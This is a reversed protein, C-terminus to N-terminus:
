RVTVQLTDRRDFRDPAPIHLSYRGPPLGLECGGGLHAMTFTGGLRAQWRVPATVTGGPELWVRRAIGTSLESVDCGPPPRLVEGDALVESPRSVPEGMSDFLDVQLLEQGINRYSVEHEVAGGSSATIPEAVMALVDSAPFAGCDAYPLACADDRDQAALDFESGACAPETPLVPRREGQYSWVEGEVVRPPEEGQPLTVRV